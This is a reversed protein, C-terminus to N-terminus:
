IKQLLCLPMPIPLSIRGSNRANTGVGTEWNIYNLDGILQKTPDFRKYANLYGKKYKSERTAGVLMVLPMFTFDQAKAHQATTSHFIGAISLALLTKEIRQM